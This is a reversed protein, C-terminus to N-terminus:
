SKQRKLHKLYLHVSLVLLCYSRSTQGIQSRNDDDIKFTLLSYKRSFYLLQAIVEIKKQHRDKSAGLTDMSPCYLYTLAARLKSSKTITVMISKSYWYFINAGHLYKVQNNFKSVRRRSSIFCKVVHVLIWGFHALLFSDAVFLYGIRGARHIVGEFWVESPTECPKGWPSLVYRVNAFCVDSVWM